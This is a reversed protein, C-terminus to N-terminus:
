DRLASKVTAACECNGTLANAYRARRNGSRRYLNCLSAASYGGPPKTIKNVYAQQVRAPRFGM